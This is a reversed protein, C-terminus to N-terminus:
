PCVHAFAGPLPQHSAAVDGLRGILWRGPGPLFCTSSPCAKSAAHAAVIFGKAWGTAGHLGGPRGEGTCGGGCLCWRLSTSADLVGLVLLGGCGNTWYAPGTALKCAPRRAAGWAPPAPAHCAHPRSLGRACCAAQPAHRLHANCAIRDKYIILSQMLPSPAARQDCAIKEKCQVLPACAHRLHHKSRGPM